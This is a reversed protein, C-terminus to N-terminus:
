RPEARLAFVKFQHELGVVAFDPGEGSFRCSLSGPVLLRWHRTSAQGTDWCEIRARGADAQLFVLARSESRRWALAQLPDAEGQVDRPTFVSREEGSAVDLISLKSYHSNALLLKTQPRNWAVRTNLGPLTALVRESGLSLDFSRITTVPDVLGVPTASVCILGQTGHRQLDQVTEGRLEVRARVKGEASYIRLEGAGGLAYDGGSLELASSLAFPVESFLLHSDGLEVRRLGRRPSDWQAHLLIVGAPSIQVRRNAGFSSFHRVVGPRGPRWIQHSGVYSLVVVAALEPLLRGVGVIGGPSDFTALERGAKRRLLQAADRARPHAPFRRTLELAALYRILEHGEDLKGALESGRSAGAERAPSSSQASLTPPPSASPPPEARTLAYGGALAFGVLLVGAARIWKSRGTDLKPDALWADLRAAFVGADAPREEPATRLSVQILKRLPTPVRSLARLQEAKIGSAVSVALQIMSEGQFPLEDTLALYLLVALSWVDSAATPRVEGTLQEPAMFGPTGVMAGTQTLRELEGSYAVGFDAVRARGAGDVLVNDPKLDRHVIGVAHAAAVGAAADRLLKVRGVLNLSRWAKDLPRADQVLECVLLDAGALQHIEHVQVVNPHQLAAALRGERLFRERAASDRNAQVKLAVQRGIRADTARYVAGMGGRGLLVVDRFPTQAWDWNEASSGSGSASGPQIM